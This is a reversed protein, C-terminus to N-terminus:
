RAAHSHGDHSPGRIRYVTTWPRREPARTFVIRLAMAAVQM